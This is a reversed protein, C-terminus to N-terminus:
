RKTVVVRRLPSYGGPQAVLRAGLWFEGELLEGNNNRGDWEASYTRSEGPQLTENIAIAIFVKGHAWSWLLSQASIRSVPAATAMTAAFFDFRQGGTQIALPAANRNTATLTLTLKEGHRLQEASTKFELALGDLPKTLNLLNDVIIRLEPSAGFYDTDVQKNAGSYRYIIRYKFADAVNADIYEPQMHLFDQEVFVTILRNFEETTLVTEIQGSQGRHDIFQVYRNADILLQQNVGAFGGTIQMEIVTQGSPGDLNQQNKEDNNPSFLNANSCGGILVVILLIFSYRRM